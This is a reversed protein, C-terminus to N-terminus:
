SAHRIASVRLDGDSVDGVLEDEAQGLERANGLSKGASELDLFPEGLLDSEGDLFRNAGAANGHHHFRLSRLKM